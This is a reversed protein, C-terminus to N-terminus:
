FDTKENKDGCLYKFLKECSKGDNFEAFQKLKNDSVTKYKKATIITEINM